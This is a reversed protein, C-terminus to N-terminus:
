HRPMWILTAYIFCLLPVISLTSLLLNTWLRLGRGFFSGVFTLLAFTLLIALRAQLHAHVRIAMEKDATFSFGIEHLFYTWITAFLVAVAVATTINVLYDRRAQQKATM